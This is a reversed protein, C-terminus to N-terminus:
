RRWRARRWAQHLGECTVACKGRGEVVSYVTADTARYDLLARYFDVAAQLSRKM